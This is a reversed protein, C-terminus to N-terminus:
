WTALHIKIVLISSLLYFSEEWHLYQNYFLSLVDGLCSYDSRIAASVIDVICLEIAFSLGHGWKELVNKGVMGAEMVM